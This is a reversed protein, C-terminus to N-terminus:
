RGGGLNRLMLAYDVVRRGCVLVNAVAMWDGHYNLVGFSIVGLFSGPSALPDKARPGLQLFGFSFAEQM